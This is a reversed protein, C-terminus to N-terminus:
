VDELHGRNPGGLPINTFSILKSDVDRDNESFQGAHIIVPSSIAPRPVHISLPPSPRKKKKAGGHNACVAASYSIIISIWALVLGAAILATHCSGTSSGSPKACFGKKDLRVSWAIAAALDLVTVCSLAERDSKINNFVCSRTLAKYFLVTVLIVGALSNCAV